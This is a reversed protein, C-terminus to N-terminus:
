GGMGKVCPLKEMAVRAAYEGPEDHRDTFTALTQSPCHEGGPVRVLVTSPYAHPLQKTTWGDRTPPAAVWTPETAGKSYSGVTVRARPNPPFAVVTVGPEEPVTVAWEDSPSDGGGNDEMKLLDVETGAPGSLVFKQLMAPGGEASEQQDCSEGGTLRVPAAAVVLRHHGVDGAFLITIGGFIHEDSLGDGELAPRIRAWTADRVVRDRALSGRTTPADEWLPLPGLRACAADYSADLEPPISPEPLTPTADHPPELNCGSVVVMLVASAVAAVLGTRLV